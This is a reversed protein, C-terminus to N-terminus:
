IYFNYFITVIEALQQALPALPALQQVLQQALQPELQPALRQALQQIQNRKEPTLSNQPLLLLISINVSIKQLASFFGNQELAVKYNVLSITKTRDTFILIHQLGDYLNILMQSDYYCFSGKPLIITNYNKIANKYTNISDIFLSFLYNTVHM